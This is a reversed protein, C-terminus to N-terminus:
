GEREEPVHAAAAQAEPATHEPSTLTGAGDGRAKVVERVAKAIKSRLYSHLERATEREDFHGISRRYYNMRNVLERDITISVPNDYPIAIKRKM